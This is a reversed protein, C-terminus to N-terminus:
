IDRSTVICVISHWEAKFPQGEVRACICFLAAPALWLGHFVSHLMCCCCLHDLRPWLSCLNPGVRHLCQRLFEGLLIAGADHASHGCTDEGRRSMEFIHGAWFHFDAASCLEPGMAGAFVQFTEPLSGHEADGGAEDAWGGWEFLGQWRLGNQSTSGVATGAPIGGVWRGFVVLVCSDRGRDGELLQCTNCAFFGLQVATDHSCCGPYRFDNSAFRLNQTGHPNVNHSVM